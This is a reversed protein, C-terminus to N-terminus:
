QLPLVSDAFDQDFTQSLDRVVSSVQEQERSQERERDILHRDDEDLITHEWDGDDDESDSEGIELTMEEVRDELFGDKELFENEIVVVHRCFRSWMEATVQEFGEYNLRKAETM